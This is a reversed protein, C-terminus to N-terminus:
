WSKGKNYRKFTDTDIRQLEGNRYLFKLGQSKKYSHLEGGAEIDIFGHGFTLLYEKSANLDLPEKTTTQRKKKTTLDIYGIWVKAKPIIRLPPPTKKKPVENKAKASINEETKQTLNTDPTSPNKVSLNKELTPTENKRNQKKEPVKDRSIFYFAIVASVAFIGLIIWLTKKSKQESSLLEKKYEPEEQTTLRRNQEEYYALASQRLDGLDVGYERELISVFGMLQVKHMEEFSM